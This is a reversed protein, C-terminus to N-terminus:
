FYLLISVGFGAMPCCPLFPLILHLDLFSFLHSQFLGNLFQSMIRIPKFLEHVGGFDRICSGFKLIEGKSFFLMSQFAAPLRNRFTGQCLIGSAHPPYASSWSVSDNLSQENMLRIRIHHGCSNETIAGTTESRATRTQVMCTAM